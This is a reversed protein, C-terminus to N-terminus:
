VFTQDAPQPLRSTNGRITAVAKGDESSLFDNDVDDDNEEVALEHVVDNSEM